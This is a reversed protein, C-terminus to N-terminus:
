SGRHERQSRGLGSRRRSFCESRHQAKSQVVQIVLITRRLVRVAPYGSVVKGELSV